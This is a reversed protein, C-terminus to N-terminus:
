KMEGKPVIMLRKLLAPRIREKSAIQHLCEHLNSAEVDEHATVTAYEYTVKWLTMVENRRKAILGLKSTLKKLTNEPTDGLRKWPRNVLVLM